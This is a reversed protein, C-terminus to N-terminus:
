LPPAGGRQRRTLERSASQEGYLERYKDLYERYLAVFTAHSWTLPSVSLPANTYPSVQEALTGSPLARRGVWELIEKAPQLDMPQEARAVYWQALWMTCIFWPNGPVNAIDSSVQHFYDNEYRAMGGVETRVWLRDRLREMTKVIHPDDAPFMGFYYLGVISADLVMDKEYGGHRDPIVRRVFRGDAEDLLYRQAAAKMEDATESFKSALGDDGFGQAFAAAAMLGAWVAGVTWAHIGHREEWLDYSPLPLGTHPDRFSCLFNAARKILAAYLPKILEVDRIRRFERELAWLVLATEDEQIPLQVEGAQTSWPHWSSGESGDPGYKHAMFGEPRISRACFEFFRQALTGFGAQGLADAVLAGDRPWMYSYVDRNFHLNDTDNAAIIAGGNDVQTRIILLSRLYLEHLEQSLDAEGGVGAMVWYRWYHRTREILSAPGLERLSKNHLRLAAYDEDISMWYHIVETAGPALGFSVGGTSDVSGQSVLNWGLEGDEADRWTGERGNVGSEGIAIADWGFRGEREVDVWFWMKRKYHILARTEADFYATNGIVDSYISLDQHFFLRVMRPRAVLNRVEVRRLYVPRHFDVCDSCRLELELRENKLRVDTVLSSREYRLDKRWEQDKIWSFQGDVWIGFYCKSGGVHNYLGVHPYYFDRLLYDADFNVLVSGNGIVLDRPM